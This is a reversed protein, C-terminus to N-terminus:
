PVRPGSEGGAFRSGTEKRFFDAIFRGVYYLGFGVCVAINGWLVYRWIASPTKEVNDLLWLGILSAMCYQIALFVGLANWASRVLRTEVKHNENGQTKM